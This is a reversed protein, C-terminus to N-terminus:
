FCYFQGTTVDRGPRKKQKGKKLSANDTKIPVFAATSNQPYDLSKNQENRTSIKTKQQEKTAGASKSSISIPAAVEKVEILLKSPPQLTAPLMEANDEKYIQISQKVAPEVLESFKVMKEKLHPIVAEAVENKTEIKSRTAEVQTKVMENELKKGSAMEFFKKVNPSQGPPLLIHAPWFNPCVPVKLQRIEENLSWIMTDKEWCADVLLNYQHAVTNCQEKPVLDAIQVKLQVSYAIQFQLQKDCTFTKM